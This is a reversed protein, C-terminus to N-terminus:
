KLLCTSNNGPKIQALAIPLRELMQKPNLIRLGTEQKSDYTNRSMNKTYDNFMRVVEERSNYLNKINNIIKKQEQSKDKPDQQKICGLDRKLEIQEKEIDELTICGKHISTFIHMPGKFKSFSLSLIRLDKFNYTLYNFNAPEYSERIKALGNHFYNDYENPKTERQRM